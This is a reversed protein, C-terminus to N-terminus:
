NTASGEPKARWLEKLQRPRAGDAFAKVRVEFEDGLRNAVLDALECAARYRTGQQVDTAAMSASEDILITLLPKGPPPPIPRVWTPNLLIILAALVGVGMLGVSGVWRGMPVSGPRRRAYWVWLVVGAIALALWLASPILPDFSM